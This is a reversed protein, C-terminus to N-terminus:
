FLPVTFGHSHGNVPDFFANCNQKQIIFRAAPKAQRNGVEGRAGTLPIHESKEQFAVLVFGASCPVPGSCKDCFEPLLLRQRPCESM